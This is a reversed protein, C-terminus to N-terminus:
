FGLYKFLGSRPDIGKWNISVKKTTEDMGMIQFGM